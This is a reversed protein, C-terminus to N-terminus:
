TADKIEAKEKHHPEPWSAILALTAAFGGWIATSLYGREVGAFLWGLLFLLAWLIKIFMAAAFGYADKKRFAFILCIFGTILWLSGWFKLGLATQLFIYTPNKLSQPTPNFLGFSYVFDLLSLFLLFAGRRGIKHCFGTVKEVYELRTM